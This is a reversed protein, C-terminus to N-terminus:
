FPYVQSLHNRYTETVNYVNVMRKKDNLALWTELVGIEVLEKLRRRLNHTLSLNCSKSLDHATFAGGQGLAHNDICKQLLESYATPKLNNQTNM